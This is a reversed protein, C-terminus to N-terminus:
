HNFSPQATVLELEDFVTQLQSLIASNPAEIIGYAASRSKLWSETLPCRPVLFDVTTSCVESQTSLLLFSPGILRRVYIYRLSMCYLLFPLIFLYGISDLDDTPSLSNPLRHLPTLRTAMLTALYSPKSRPSTTAGGSTLLIASKAIYAIPPFSM